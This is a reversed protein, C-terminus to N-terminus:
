ENLQKLFITIIKSAAYNTIIQKNFNEALNKWQDSVPLSKFAEILQKSNNNEIVYGTKLHHVLEPMFGVNSVIPCLGTLGYELVSVPFGEYSSVLIGVQAQNLINFIDSCLGYIFVSSEDHADMINKVENFYADNYTNGVLHLSWGLKSIESDIFCQVLFSHNKPNRFNALCVIRKENDGFLTTVKIESNVSVFNPLYITKDTLLNNAAWTLLTKNCAITGTFYKSAQIIKKNEVEDWDLRNGNHDHWYFAINPYITRIIKAWKYSSSHAQIATIKHKKLYILLNVIILFLNFKNRKFIKCKVNAHVQDALAGSQNTIIIHSEEIHNALENAYNVAMKEAGGPHLSDILQVIRM